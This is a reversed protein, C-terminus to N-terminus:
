EPPTGAPADGAELAKAQHPAALGQRAKLAALQSEVDTQQELVAFQDEVSDTKLEGLAAARAEQQDVKDEM